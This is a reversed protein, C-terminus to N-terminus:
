GPPGEIMASLSELSWGEKSRRRIIAFGWLMGAIKRECDSLGRWEDQMERYSGTM